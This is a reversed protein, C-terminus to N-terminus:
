SIGATHFVEPSNASSPQFQPQLALINQELTLVSILLDPYACLFALMWFGKLDNQLAAPLWAQDIKEGTIESFYCKIQKNVFLLVRARFAINWKLTM